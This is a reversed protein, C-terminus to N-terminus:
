PTLFTRRDHFDPQDGRHALAWYSLRGDGNEVVMALGIEPQLAEPWAPALDLHIDCRLDRERRQLQIQPPRPLDVLEPSSRYASFDYLNWDGNPAANLEWYRPSGPWGLFAEFCTHRWLGDRRQAPAAQSALRLGALTDMGAGPRLGFSFDMVGTAQWVTEVRVLLSPSQDPAFPHLVCVQRVMVSHRAM